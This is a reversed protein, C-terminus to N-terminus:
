WDFWVLLIMELSVGKGMRWVKFVLFAIKKSCCMYFKWLAIWYFTSFIEAIKNSFVYNSCFLFITIIVDKYLLCLLCILFNDPKWELQMPFNNAPVIFVSSFLPMRIILSHYSTIVTSFKRIQYFRYIMFIITHM